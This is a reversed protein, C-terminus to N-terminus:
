WSLSPKAPTESTPKVTHDVLANYHSDLAADLNDTQIVSSFRIIYPPKVFRDSLARAYIDMNPLIRYRRTLRRGNVEERSTEILSKQRWLNFMQMLSMDSPRVKLLIRESDSDHIFVGVSKGTEKNAIVVLNAKM